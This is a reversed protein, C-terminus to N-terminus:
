GLFYVDTWLLKDTTKVSCGIASGFATVKGPTIHLTYGNLSLSPPTYKAKVHAWSMGYSGSTGTGSTKAEIEASDDM